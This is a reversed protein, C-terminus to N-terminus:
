KTKELLNEIKFEYFIESKYRRFGMNNNIALMPENTDNNGTEIFEVNPLREKIYFLMEAKLWKGLGRGRYEKKVGTLEQEVWHANSPHYFIETLGSITGSPERSIITIWECGKESYTQEDSRRSESTIIMEGALDESPAQNMTETYLICFDNLDKEPIKEFLELTVGPAKRKAIERWEDILDWNVDKLYM